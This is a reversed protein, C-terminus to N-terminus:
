RLYTKVKVVFDLWAARVDLVSQRRVEKTTAAKFAIKKEEISVILDAAVDVPVSRDILGEARKSLDDFRFLVLDYVKQRLEDACVTAQPEEQELCVIMQERINAQLGLAGKACAVREDYTPAGWCPEFDKYLRICSERAAGEVQARCLEPLYKIENERAIGDPSLGLRCIIRERMTAQDCQLEPCQRDTTPKTTQVAPCDVTLRCDRHQSGNADCAAWDECSWTDARCGPDAVLCTERESPKPTVVEPCEKQLICSRTREGSACAGWQSCYWLDETCPSTCQESEAPRPTVVGPCDYSLQCSRTRTGAVCSNWSGCVWADSTCAPSTVALASVAWALSFASAIAILIHRYTFRM